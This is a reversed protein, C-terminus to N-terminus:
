PLFGHVRIQQYQGQGHHEGDDVPHQEPLQGAFAPLEDSGQGQRFVAVAGPAAEVEGEIAQEGAEGATTVTAIRWIRQRNLAMLPILVLEIPVPVILTELFSFLALLWLMHKSGNLRELWRRARTPASTM